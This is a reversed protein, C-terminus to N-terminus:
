LAILEGDADTLRAIGKGRASRACKACGVMRFWTRSVRAPTLGCFTKEPKSGAWVLHPATGSATDVVLVERLHVGDGDLAPRPGFFMVGLSGSIAGGAEAFYGEFNWGVPSVM